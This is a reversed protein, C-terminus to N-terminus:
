KAASATQIPMYLKGTLGLVRGSLLNGARLGDRTPNIRSQWPICNGTPPCDSGVIEYSLGSYTTGTGSVACVVGEGQSNYNNLPTRFGSGNDFFHQCNWQCERFMTGAYVTYKTYNPKVDFKTCGAMTVDLQDIDTLVNSDTNTRKKVSGSPSTTDTQGGTFNAYVASSIQSFLTEVVYASAPLNKFAEVTVSNDKSPASVSITWTNVQRVCNERSLTSLYIVSEDADPVVYEATNNASQWQEPEFGPASNNHETNDDVHVYYGCESNDSHFVCFGFPGPDHAKVSPINVMVALLVIYLQLKM